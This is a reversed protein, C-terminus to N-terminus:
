QNQIVCNVQYILGSIYLALELINRRLFEDVVFHLDSTASKLSEEEGKNVYNKVVKPLSHSKLNVGGM